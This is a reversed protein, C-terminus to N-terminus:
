DKRCSCFAIQTVCVSPTHSHRRGQAKYPCRGVHVTYRFEPLLSEPLVCHWSPFHTKWLHKTQSFIRALWTKLSESQCIFSYHLCRVPHVPLWLIAKRSAPVQLHKVDRFGETTLPGWGSGEAAQLILLDAPGWWCYWWGVCSNGVKPGEPRRQVSYLHTTGSKHSHGSVHAELLPPCWGRKIKCFYSREKKKPM